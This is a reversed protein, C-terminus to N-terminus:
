DELIIKTWSDEDEEKFNIINYQFLQKKLIEIQGDYYFPNDKYICLNKNYFNKVYYIKM